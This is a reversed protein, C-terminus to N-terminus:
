SNDVIVQCLCVQLLPIWPTNEHGEGLLVKSDRAIDLEERTYQETVLTWPCQEKLNQRMGRAPASPSQLSTDIDAATFIGGDYDGGAAIQM